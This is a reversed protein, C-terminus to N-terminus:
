TLSHLSLSHLCWINGHLFFANFSNNIAYRVLNSFCNQINCSLITTYIFFSFQFILSVPQPVPLISGWKWRQFVCKTNRAGQKLHFFIIKKVDSRETILHRPFLSRTLHHTTRRKEINKANEERKSTSVRSCLIFIDLTQRDRERKREIHSIPPM